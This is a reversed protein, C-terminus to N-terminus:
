IAIATLDCGGIDADNGNPDRDYAEDSEERIDM